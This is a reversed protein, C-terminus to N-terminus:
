QSREKASSILRKASENLVAFDESIQEYPNDPVGWRNNAIWNNMDADNIAIMLSALNHNAPSLLNEIRKIRENHLLKLEDWLARATQISSGANM